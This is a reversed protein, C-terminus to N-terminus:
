TIHVWAEQDVTLTMSINVAHTADEKRRNDGVHISTATLEIM